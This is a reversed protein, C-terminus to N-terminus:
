FTVNIGFSYSRTFPYVSGNDDVKLNGNNDRRGVADPDLYKYLGTAEWLNQGSVFVKLQGIGYKNILAKPITYSLHPSRESPYFCRKKCINQRHKNVEIVGLRFLITLTRIPKVGLTISSTIM